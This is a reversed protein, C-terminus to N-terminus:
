WPPVGELTTLGRCDCDDDDCWWPLDGGAAPAQGPSVRGFPLGALYEVMQARRRVSLPAVSVPAWRVTAPPPGAALAAEMGSIEARRAAGAQEARAVDSEARARLLVPDTSWARTGERCRAILAADEWYDGLTFM